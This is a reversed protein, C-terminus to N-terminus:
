QVNITLQECQCTKDPVALSACYHEKFNIEHQALFPKGSNSPPKPNPGCKEQPLQLLIPSRLSGDECAQLCAARESHAAQSGGPVHDLEPQRGTPASM